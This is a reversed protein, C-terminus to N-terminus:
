TKKYLLMFIQRLMRASAGWIQYREFTFTYMEKISRHEPHTDEAVTKLFPVFPIHLVSNVESNPKISHIGDLIAVFPTIMYKSNLTVVPELQGIIQKRSIRIDLEEETERLATELLDSDKECLKGGPFSIEGAHVKLTKAKETMLITPVKGYIIILVSALKNEDLKSLPTPKIQSTLASHIQEIDM